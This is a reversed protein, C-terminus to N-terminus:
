EMRTVLKHAMKNPNETFLLKLREMSLVLLMKYSKLAKFEFRYDNNTFIYEITFAMLQFCYNEIMRSCEKIKYNMKVNSFESIYNPNLSAQDQVKLSHDRIM